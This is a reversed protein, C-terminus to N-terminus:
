NRLALHSECDSLGWRVLELRHRAEDRSKEFRKLMQQEFHQQKTNAKRLSSDQGKGLGPQVPIFVEDELSVPEHSEAVSEFGHSLDRPQSDPSPSYCLDFQSAPIEEEGLDMKVEVDYAEMEKVVHNAFAEKVEPDTEKVEADQADTEKVEMDKEQAPTRYPDDPAIPPLGDDDDEIEEVDIADAANPDRAWAEDLLEWLGM